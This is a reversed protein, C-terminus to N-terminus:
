GKLYDVVEQVAITMESEINDLMLQLPVMDEVEGIFTGGEIEVGPPTWTASLYPVTVLMLNDPIDCVHQERDKLDAYASTDRATVKLAFTSDPSFQMLGNKQM